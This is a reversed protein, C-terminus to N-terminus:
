IQYIFHNKQVYHAYAAKIKIYTYKNIKIKMFHDKSYSLDVLYSKLEQLGETM